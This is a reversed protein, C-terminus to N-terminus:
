HALTVSYDNRFGFCRLRWRVRTPEIQAALLVGAAASLMPVSVAPGSDPLQLKDCFQQLLDRGPILATAAREDPSLRATALIASPLPEPRHLFPRLAQLPLELRAALRAEPSSVSLDARSICAACAHDLFNHASAQYTGLDGTGANLLIAPMDYQVDRRIKDDDVSIIALPPHRQDHPLSEWRRQRPALSLGCPNLARAMLNAKPANLDATVAILHRNLNTGDTDITEDDVVQGRGTLTTGTHHLAALAWATASAVGGAGIWAHDPIHIDSLPPGPNATASLNWLSVAGRWPRARTPLAGASALITKFAEAAALVGAYAAAIGNGRGDLPQGIGVAWGASAVPMGPASGSFVLRMSSDAAPGDVVRDPSAIGAHATILADVLPTDPLCPVTVTRDRPMVLHITPAYDALRLLLIATMAVTTETAPDLRDAVIEVVVHRAHAAIATEDLNLGTLFRRTRDSPSLGAGTV